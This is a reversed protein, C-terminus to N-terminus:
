LLKIARELKTLADPSMGGGKARLDQLQKKAEAAQQEIAELRALKREDIRVEREKLEIKRAELHLRVAAQVLEPDAEEGTSLKSFALTHILRSIAEQTAQTNLVQGAIATARAEHARIRALMNYLAGDTRRRSLWISLQNISTKVKHKRKLWAVGERLTMGEGGDNRATCMRELEAAAEAPLDNLKGKYKKM